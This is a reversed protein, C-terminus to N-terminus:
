FQLWSERLNDEWLDSHQRCFKSYTCSYWVLRDTQDTIEDLPKGKTKWAKGGKCDEEESCEASRIRYSGSTTNEVILEVHQDHDLDAAAYRIEGEGNGETLELADEQLDLSLSFFQHRIDDTLEEEKDCRYDDRLLFNDWVTNEMNYWFVEGAEKGSHMDSDYYITKKIMDNYRATIDSEECAKREADFFHYEQDKSADFTYRGIKRFTVGTDGPMMDLYIVDADDNSLAIKDLVIYHYQDKQPDYYCDAKRTNDFISFYEHQQPLDGEVTWKQITEDETVEYFAPCPKGMEDYVVMELYGDQDLDMLSYRPGEVSVGEADENEVVRVDEQFFNDENKALVQIQQHIEMSVKQKKEVSVPVATDAEQKESLPANKGCATGLIALILFLVISNIRKIM